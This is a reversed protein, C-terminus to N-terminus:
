CCHEKHNCGYSYQETQTEECCDPHCGCHDNMIMDLKGILVSELNAVTDLIRELACTNQMLSEVNGALAVIKQLKEGEANLVHSLAAEQLAISEMLDNVAQQRSVSPDSCKIEPMSM